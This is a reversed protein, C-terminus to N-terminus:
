CHFIEQEAAQHSRCAPTDSQVRERQLQLPSFIAPPPLVLVCCPFFYFCLVPASYPVQYDVGRALYKESFESSLRFKIEYGCSSHIDVVTHINYQTKWM